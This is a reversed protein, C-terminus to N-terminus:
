GRRVLGTRAVLTALLGVGIIAITSPEPVDEALVTSTVAPVSTTGAGQVRSLTFGYEFGQYVTLIDGTVTGSANTDVTVTSLLTVARFAGSTWPGQPADYFFDTGLTVGGVSDGNDSSSYQFPYIPDCYATGSPTAGITSPTTNNDANPGSPIPTCATTFAGSGSSGASLSYTDLTIKPTSVLGATPTYNSFLAQTWVLQSLSPDDAGQVYNSINVIVPSIGGSDTSLSAGISLTLTLDLTGGDVLTWDDGNAANWNNFATVFDANLTNDGDITGSIFPTTDTATDTSYYITDTCGSVTQGRSNTCSALSASSSIITASAPAAGLLTITAFFAAVVLHKSLSM